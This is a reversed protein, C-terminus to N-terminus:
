IATLPVRMVCIDEKNISFVVHLYGDRILTHPYAYIGVKQRGQFRRQYVHDALIIETDFLYGDASLSLVLPCRLPFGTGRTRPDPNGIHYFRGDPLRGTHFKAQNDTFDTQAPKSWTTGDDDSETVWLHPTRSRLLMHIIGDDTQYFSGENLTVHSPIGLKCHVEQSFSKREAGGFGTAHAYPDMEEPYFGTMKWGSLGSPDDTYPHSVGGSIILRGSATPRPGYNACLPLGLAVPADWNVGDSTTRIWLSMNRTAKGTKKARGNEINWPEYEFLCYYASLRDERQYLGCPIAVKENYEGMDSDVLQVPESWSLFDESTAIMVRQGVDDEDITGNSWIAYYRDRYFAIQGHHAYTWQESSEPHYLFTIEPVLRKRSRNPDYQNSITPM